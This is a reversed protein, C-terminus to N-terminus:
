ESQNSNIILESYRWTLIGGNAIWTGVLVQDFGGVLLFVLVTFVGALIAWGDNKLLWIWLGLSIGFAIPVVYLTLATWVGFTTALAKGGRFNLFPSFVHGLVPALSVLFLWWGDVGGLYVALAVPLFGKLGDLLIALIGWRPGGAKWVNVGGPNGDGYQRIDVKLVLNGLWYSLPLSGCFLAFIVWIFDIVM